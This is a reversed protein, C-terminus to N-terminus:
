YPIDHIRPQLCERFKKLVTLEHDEDPDLDKEYDGHTLYILCYRFIGYATYSGVRPFSKDRPSSDDDPLVGLKERLENKLQPLEADEFSYLWENFHITNLNLGM